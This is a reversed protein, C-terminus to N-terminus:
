AVAIDSPFERRSGVVAIFLVTLGGGDGALERQESRVPDDFFDSPSVAPDEGVVAPTDDGSEEGRMLGIDILERLEGRLRM